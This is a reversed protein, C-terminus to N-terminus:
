TRYLLLKTCRSRTDFTRNTDIGRLYPVVTNRLLLLKHNFKFNTDIGRLYPVVLLIRLPLFFDLLYHWNREPVTCCCDKGVIVLITNYKKWFNLWKEELFDTSRNEQRVSIIEMYDLIELSKVLNFFNENETSLRKQLIEASKQELRYKKGRWWGCTRINVPKLPRRVKENM